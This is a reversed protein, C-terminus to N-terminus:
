GVVRRGGLILATPALLLAAFIGASATLGISRLVPHESLALLSFGILTSVAAVSVSLLAAPLAAGSRRGADVVFVGYDVGIAVVIVLSTLAIMDIAHGALALAGLAAAGALLAPIFAALASSARRYRLLLLLLVGALGVGILRSAQQQYDRNVRGWLQRQEVFTAGEIAAVRDRLQQPKQVQHLLTLFGVRQGLEFRLPRVLAALPSDHLDKYRLPTVPASLLEWFGSFVGARFGEAAFAARLRERLRPVARVAEAVRRQREASPLLEAISRFDALEGAARASRLSDAVLDNRRLAQEENRGTVVVFQLQEARSVRRRVRQEEAQLKADIAGLSVFDRSWRVHFLGLVAVLAAATPLLWLWARHRAMARMALALRLAARQRLAVSRPRAPLLTPVVFRAGLLTIFIGTTAFLAVERLGRHPTAGLAAFGVMTTAAGTAIAVFVPRLQREAPSAVAAHHCYLHVVYDFSVGILSAGFALTVAHVEGYTALVAATGALVGAAIPLSALALLRLSRFLLWLLVALGLSALVSVRRIDSRIANEAKVAFRNVGSRDLSLAGDFRRNVTAFARDIGRLLPAQVSADFASAHTCLFLVAFRGDATLFRGQRVKLEKARSRQLREILGPLIMLPDRGVEGSLAVSMPGLLAAKLRRARARLAADSLETSVKSPDGVLFAVARDRYLQWLARSAGATPGGELFALAAGIRPSQRLAREFERSAAVAQAENAAGLTLIMTRSLASNALQRSLALKGRDEAPLFHTLDSKTRFRYAVFTALVAVVLAAVLM